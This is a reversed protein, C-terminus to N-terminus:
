CKKKVKVHKGLKPMKETIVKKILRVINIKRANMVGFFSSQHKYITYPISDMFHLQKFREQATEMYKKEFFKLFHEKIILNLKPFAEIFGQITEPSYAEQAAFSEAPIKYDTYNVGAKENLLKVTEQLREWLEVKSQFPLDFKIGKINRLPNIARYFRSPIYRKYNCFSHRNEMVEVFHVFEIVEMCRSENRKSLSMDINKIEDEPFKITRLFNAVFGDKDQCADEFKIIQLCDNFCAQLNFIGTYQKIAVEFFGANKNLYGSSFLIQNTWSIIWTLPNRVYYIITTEINNDYFYKKVFNQIREITSDLYLSTFFEGSLVLTECDSNNIVKLLTNIANRNELSSGHHFLSHFKDIHDRGWETLYRFGFKELVAANKYLTYQISSSGAKPMGLHIIARKIPM